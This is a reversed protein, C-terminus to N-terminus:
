GATIQDAFAAPDVTVGEFREFTIDNFPLGLKARIVDFIGYYNILIRKSWDLDMEAALARIRDGPGEIELFDGFPM